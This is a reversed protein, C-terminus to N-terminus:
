DSFSENIFRQYARLTRTFGQNVIRMRPHELELEALEEQAGQAGELYRPLDPPIVDIRALYALLTGIVIYNAANEGIEALEKDTLDLDDIQPAQSRIEIIREFGFPRREESEADHEANREAM